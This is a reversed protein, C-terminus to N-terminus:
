TVIINRRSSDAAMRMLAPVQENAAITGIQSQNTVTSVTSVTTVTGVTTITALTLSATIADIAVRLRGATDPYTQGISRQLSQVTTRLAQLAQILENNTIADDIDYVIQLQDGSSMTSTDATLTLLQGSISTEGAAPDVCNYIIVNQTANIIAVLRKFDFGDIGSLLITGLGPGGPTFTYTPTIFSKM